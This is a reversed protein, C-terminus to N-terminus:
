TSVPNIPEMTYKYINAKNKKQKTKKFITNLCILWEVIESCVNSYIILNCYLM